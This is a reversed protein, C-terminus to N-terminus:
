LYTGCRHESPGAPHARLHRTPNPDNRRPSSELRDRSAPPGGRPRIPLVCGGRRGGADRAARRPDALQRNSRPCGRAFRPEAGSGDVRHGEPDRRPCRNRLRCSRPDRHCPGGSTPPTSLNSFVRRLGKFPRKPLARAATTGVSVGVGGAEDQTTWFKVIKGALQQIRPDDNLQLPKSMRALYRAAEDKMQGSAAAVVKTVSRTASDHRKSEWLRFRLERADQAYISLGDGGHDIVSFHEHEVHIPSGWGGNLDAAMFAWLHEVVAGQLRIQNSHDAFDSLLYAELVARTPEDHAPGGGHRAAWSTLAAPDPELLRNVIHVAVLQAVVGRHGDIIRRM